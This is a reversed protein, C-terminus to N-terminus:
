TKWASPCARYATLIRGSLLLEFARSAGILRPLIWTSGAEPIIGRRTFVFGIKAKDSALRIDWQLPLTAGIGVAPGNIAAIVPKNFDYIRRTVRGGGDGM